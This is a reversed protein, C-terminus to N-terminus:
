RDKYGSDRYAHTQAVPLRVKMTTGRGPESDVQLDYEEGYYLKIRQRVNSLGYGKKWAEEEMGVGNDTIYFVFCDAEPFGKINLIGKGIKPELGHYIANEIIPQLVLKLMKEDLISEDIDMTVELRDGYRMKQIYLYNEIHRVEERVKTFEQGKNLSLKFIESLALTMEGAQESRGMQTMLYISDLTNYLFHPNIQAQLAILEAEKQKLENEYLSDKLSLNQEVMQKFRNGIQGIEDTGFQETINYNGEEDVKRIASGLNDLPRNIIKTLLIGLFGVVIIMVMCIALTVMGIVNAKKGLADQNLFYLIEWNSIENITKGVNWEHKTDLSGSYYKQVMKNVEEAMGSAFVVKPTEKVSTDVVVYASGELEEGTPLVTGLISSDIRLQLYGVPLFNKLSYMAKICDFSHSDFAQFREKGQYELATQYTDNHKQEQSGIQLAPEEAQVLSKNFRFGRQNDLVISRIKLSDQMVGSARNNLQTLMKYQDYSKMNKFYVEDHNLLKVITSEEMGSKSDYLFDRAAQRLNEFIISINNDYTDVNYEHVKVVQQITVKKSVEYAIMGLLALPLMSLVAMYCLIRSRITRFGIRKM